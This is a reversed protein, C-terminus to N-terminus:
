KEIIVIKLIHELDAEVAETQEHGQHVGLHEAEGHETPLIVFQDSKCALDARGFDDRQRGVHQGVQKGRQLQAHAREARIHCCEAEFENVNTSIEDM